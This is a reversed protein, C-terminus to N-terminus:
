GRNSGTVIAVYRGDCPTLVLAAMHDTNQPRSLPKMFGADMSLDAMSHPEKDWRRM